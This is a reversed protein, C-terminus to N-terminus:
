IEIYFRMSILGIIIVEYAPDWRTPGMIMTQNIREIHSIYYYAVEANLNM